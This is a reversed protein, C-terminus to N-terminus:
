QVLVKPYKNIIAATLSKLAKLSIPHYGAFIKKNVTLLLFVLFLHLINESNTPCREPTKITLESCIECRRKNNCNKVILLYINTPSNKRTYVKNSLTHLHPCAENLKM